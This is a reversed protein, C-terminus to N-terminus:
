QPAVPTVPVPAPAPSAVPASVGVAGFGPIVARNGENAATTRVLTGLMDEALLALKRYPVFPVYVIDGQELRVDAARGKSISKYDIIAIRPHALSGRVIAVHTVQAYPITGGVSALASLLSMRDSYPLINPGAVAGLVFVNRSTTSRLYVFDDPQLYINQSLDGQSILRHLDIHLMQGNRMLFSNQLDPIGSSSGPVHTVGGALSIAELVTLPVALPYVGPAAVSGLIWLRKSGVGRLTVALEPQVRTFRGLEKELTEKTETLTLGWVALGPLLSYYIKGDPGVLATGRAEPEGLNEIEIFDGPGLRFFNTPPKLWEPQIENTLNVASFSAEELTALKARHHASAPNADSDAGYSGSGALVSLLVFWFLIRDRGRM